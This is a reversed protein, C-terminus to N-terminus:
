AAALYGRVFEVDFGPDYDPSPGALDHMILRACAQRVDPRNEYTAWGLAEHVDEIPLVGDVIRAFTVGIPRLM